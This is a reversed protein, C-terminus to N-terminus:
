CSEAMYKCREDSHECLDDHGQETHLLGAQEADAREELAPVTLGKRKLWGARVIKWHAQMQDRLDVGDRRLNSLSTQTSLDKLRAATQSSEFRM